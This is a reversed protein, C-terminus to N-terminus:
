FVRKNSFNEGGSSSDRFKLRKKPFLKAFDSLQARSSEQVGCIYHLYLQADVSAKAIKKPLRQYGKRKTSEKKNVRPDVNCHFSGTVNWLRNVKTITAM